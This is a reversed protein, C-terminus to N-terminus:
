PMPYGIYPIRLKYWCTPCGSAGPYPDSALVCLPGAGAGAVAELDAVRSAALNVPSTGNNAQPTGAAIEYTYACFPQTYSIMAPTLDPSMAMLEADDFGIEHGEALYQWGPLGVFAGPGSPVTPCSWTARPVIIGVPVKGSGCRAKWTDLTLNSPAPINPVIPRVPSMSLGLESQATETNEAARQAPYASPGEASCAALAMAVVTGLITRRTKM